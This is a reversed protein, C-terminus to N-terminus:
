EKHPSFVYVLDGWFFGPVIGHLNQKHTKTKIHKKREWNIDEGLLILM